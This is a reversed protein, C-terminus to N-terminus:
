SLIHTRANARRAVRSSSFSALRFTDRGHRRGGQKMLTSGTFSGGPFHCYGRLDVRTSARAWDAGLESPLKHERRCSRLVDALGPVVAYQENEERRTEILEAPFPLSGPTADHIGNNCMTHSRATIATCPLDIEDLPKNMASLCTALKEFHPDTM